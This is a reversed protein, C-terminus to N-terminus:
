ASPTPVGDAPLSASAEHRSSTKSQDMPIPSPSKGNGARAERAAAERASGFIRGLAAALKALVGGGDSRAVNLEWIAQALVPLDEWPMENWEEGSM